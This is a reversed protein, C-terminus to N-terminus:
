SRRSGHKEREKRDMIMYYWNLPDAEIGLGNFIIKAWESRFFEVDNTAVGSYVIASALYVMSDDCNLLSVRNDKSKMPGGIIFIVLVPKIQVPETWTDPTGLLTFMRKLSQYVGVSVCAYSQGDETILVVRPAITKGEPVDDKSVEVCEVSVHVLSLVENVHEKLKNAPNSTANYFAVAASRDSLNMDTYGVGTNMVDSVMMAGNNESKMMSESM